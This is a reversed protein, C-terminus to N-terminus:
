VLQNESFHLLNIRAKVHLTNLTNQPSGQPQIWSFDIAEHMDMRQKWDDSQYFENFIQVNDKSHKFETRTKSVFSDYKEYSPIVICDTEIAFLDMLGIRFKCKKPVEPLEKPLKSKQKRALPPTKPRKFEETDILYSSSTSPINVSAPKKKNKNRKKKTKSPLAKDSKIKSTVSTNDSYLTMDETDVQEEDSNMSNGDSDTTHHRSSDLTNDNSDMDFQPLIEKPHKEEEDSQEEKKEAAHRRDKQVRNNHAKKEKYTMETRKPTVDSLGDGHTTEELRLSGFQGFRSFQHYIM